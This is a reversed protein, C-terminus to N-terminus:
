ENILEGPLDTPDLQAVEFKTIGDVEIFTGMLALFIKAKKISLKSVPSYGLAFVDLEKLPKFREPKEPYNLKNRLHSYLAVVQSKFQLVEPEFENIKGKNHRSEFVLLDKMTKIAERFETLIGLRVDDRLSYASFTTKLPKSAETPKQEEGV